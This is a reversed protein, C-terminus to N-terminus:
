PGAGFTSFAAWHYASPRVERVAHAAHRAAGLVREGAFLQNYFAETWLAATEDSVPWHAAVVNRSGMELLSRVLGTAEEGPMALQEGSRCSALMVLGVRCAKLRFDVAFLPGDELVLASYFPNDARLNTHGAYHWIRFEGSSPWDERRCPNRVNAAGKALMTLTELEHDVHPLREAMGRFIEVRDATVEIARAANYHRISPALVFQHRDMLPQDEVILAQWPLNSLEGEPVILVAPSDRRIELPSWLWEGLERWLAREADAVDVPGLHDALLESELIYRWRRTAREVRRRGHEFTCLSTEGKDHVFAIIGDEGVHFQVVPLQHSICRMDHTLNEIAAATGGNDKELGILEERLRKQLISLTKEGTRRAIFGREGCQGGIQSALAAVRRALSDLSEEAQQRASRDVDSPSIQSWVGATKYRESWAAAAAPDHDLELAMLRTHPLSQKRAYASRLEVPPLQARVTDLRNAANQWHHRAAPVDGRRSEYDGLATQWIAYLHPVQHVAGNKKLRALAPRAGAPDEIAKLDCVAQWLPLQARAFNRRALLLENRRQAENKGEMDAALLHAVGLFGHNKEATFGAKARGLALRAERRAGLAFGAHARFLSSKAQEYRLKLRSFMREAARGIERADAYLGLGLFVESRDLMCLAEGRVDGGERYIKECTSLELLAMHFDGALMWLWALGYRADNADLTYGEAEYVRQAQQYLREAEPFDFLQVLTNARNYHCRAAAVHNDVREFYEAAQRYLREADRHRDRRHLLNAYNVRAQALDSEAAMRTFTAIARRAARKAKEFDGLYMYVDVLARDIRARVVRDRLALQRAKLYADLAAAHAGSMHTVRALARFATLALEGGGTESRHVFRKALTLAQKLSRRSTEQILKDCGAALVDESLGSVAGRSLFRRVTAETVTTEM